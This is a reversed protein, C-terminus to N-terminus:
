KAIEKALKKFDDGDINYTSMGADYEKYVVEGTKGNVVSFFKQSNAKVYRLYYFNEGNAIKTDLDKDSIFEYKFKYDKFLEKLDKDSKPEDEVKGPKYTIKNYDPIYLTEKKLNKVESTREPERLDCFEEKSILSNVKQFYNKLMGLTYNKYVNSNYVENIMGKDSKSIKPNNIDDTTFEASGAMLKIGGGGNGFTKDVKKLFETNAFLQIAGINMKNTMILKRFKRPDDKVKDLKENIEKTDLLYFNIMSNLVFVNSGDQAFARLHAFSYKDSLYDNYKFEDVSVIKFPTVTWTEKLLKEYQDNQFVNSLVFITTTSKFKKFTEPKFKDLKGLIDSSITIQANTIAFVFFAIVLYFSKKM